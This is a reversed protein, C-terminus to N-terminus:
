AALKQVVYNEPIGTFQIPLKFFEPIEVVNMTYIRRETTIRRRFEATVGNDVSSIEVLEPPVRM